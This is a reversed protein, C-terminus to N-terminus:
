RVYFIDELLESETRDMDDEEVAEAATVSRSNIDSALSNDGADFLDQSAKRPTHVSYSHSCRSSLSKSHQSRPSAAM